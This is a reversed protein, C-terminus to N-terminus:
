ICVRTWLHRRIKGFRTPLISISISITKNPVSFCFYICYLLLSFWVPCLPNFVVVLMRGLVFSFLSFLCFHCYMSSVIIDCATYWVFIDEQRYNRCISCRPSTPNWKTISAIAAAIRCYHFCINRTNHVSCSVYPEQRLPLKTTPCLLAMCNVNQRIIFAVTNTCRLEEYM